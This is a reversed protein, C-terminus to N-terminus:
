ETFTSQPLRKIGISDAITMRPSRPLRQGEKQGFGDGQTKLILPKDFLRLSQTTSVGSVQVSPKSKEQLQENEIQLQKVTAELQIIKAYAKELKAQSTDKKLSLPSIPLHNPWVVTQSFKRQNLEYVNMYRLPLNKSHPKSHYYYQNKIEDFSLEASNYCIFNVTQYWVRGDNLFAITPSEAISDSLSDYPSDPVSCHMVLREALYGSSVLGEPVKFQAMRKVLSEAFVDISLPHLQSILLQYSCAALEVIDNILVAIQNASSMGFSLECSESQQYLNHLWKFGESILTSVFPFPLFQSVMLGAGGVTLKGALGLKADVLGRAITLHQILHDSFHLELCKKFLSIKKRQQSTFQHIPLFTIALSPSKQEKRVFSKIEGATVELKQQTTQLASLLQRHEKVEALKSEERSNSLSRTLEVIVKERGTREVQQTIVQETLKKELEASVLGPKSNTTKAEKLTQKAQLHSRWGIQVAHDIIEQLGILKEASCELYQAAGIKIALTEAEDRSILKEKQLRFHSKVGVLIIPRNFASLQLKPLWKASINNFSERSDISFLMIFVDVARYNIRYSLEKLFYEMDWAETEWLECLVPKNDVVSSGGYESILTRSNYRYKQYSRTQIAYVLEIQDVCRDGILVCKVSQM